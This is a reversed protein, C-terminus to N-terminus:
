TRRNTRRESHIIKSRNRVGKKKNRRRIIHKSLSRLSQVKGVRKDYHSKAVYSTPVHKRLSAYRDDLNTEVLILNFFFFCMFLRAHECM